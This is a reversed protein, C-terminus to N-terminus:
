QPMRRQMEGEHFAHCNGCYLHSIDGQSYSTMGCKLCIISKGDDAIVYSALALGANKAYDSVAQWDGFNCVQAGGVPVGDKHLVWRSGSWAKNPAATKVIVWRGLAGQVANCAVDRDADIVKPPATQSTDVIDEDKLPLQIAKFASKIFGCLFVGFEEESTATPATIYMAYGGGTVTRPVLEVSIVRANQAKELREIIARLRRIEDEPANEFKWEM